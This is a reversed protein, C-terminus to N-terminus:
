IFSTIFKELNIIKNEYNEKEQQIENKFNLKIRELDKIYSSNQRSFLDNNRKLDSIDKMLNNENKEFIKIKKEYTKEKQAFVTIEDKM